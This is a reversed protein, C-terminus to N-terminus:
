VCPPPQLPLPADVALRRSPGRLVMPGVKLPRLGDWFAALRDPGLVEQGQLSAQWLRNKGFATVVEDLQEEQQQRGDQCTPCSSDAPYLRNVVLDSVPVKLQELEELLKSTQIVSLREALLVPM